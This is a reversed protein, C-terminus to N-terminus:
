RAEESPARPGPPGSVSLRDLLAGVVEELDPRQFINRGVCLGAAGADLAEGATRLFSATGEGLPGGGVLVPVPCSGIIRRLGELGPSLTKVLDAGVDAAARCAHVLASDPAPGTPGARVYTMALVPLGCRDAAEVTASLEELMEGETPEGFNVQVSVFDAGLRMAGDVTGIPRKRGPEPSLRTSGSLHIGLRSLPHLVPALVRAGGPPVIFARAGAAQLRVALEDLRALGDIPGFTVSHDLPVALLRGSGLLRRLRIGKGEM